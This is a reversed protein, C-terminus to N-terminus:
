VRSDHHYDNNVINCHVLVVETIELHPVKVGNKNKTIKSESRGLLKMTEPILLKLYYGIKVKFYNRNERKNIYMKIPPIDIVTEHKKIIYKTCKNNNYLKEINKWTYCINRNSSVAYKDSRKLNIKDPSHTSTKSNKSNM